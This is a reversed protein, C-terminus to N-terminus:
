RVLQCQVLVFDCGGTWSNETDQKWEGHFPTTPDDVISQAFKLAKEHTDFVGRVYGGEYKEGYYVLYVKQGKM